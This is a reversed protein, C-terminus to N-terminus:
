VRASILVVAMLIAVLLLEKLMIAMWTEQNGQDL